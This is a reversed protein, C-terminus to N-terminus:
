KKSNQITYNCFVSFLRSFEFISIILLSWIVAQILNDVSVNITSLSIQDLNISFVIIKLWNKSFLTYFFVLCINSIFFFTSSKFLGVLQHLVTKSNDNPLELQYLAKSFSSTAIISLATVSFGITISMFGTMMEFKDSTDIENVSFHLTFLITLLSLAVLKFKM